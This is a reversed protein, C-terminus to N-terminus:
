LKTLIEASNETVLITHEYHASLSGDRTIATWGDSKVRIDSRGMNIMPEIALVLGPKLEPGQGPPGFNPIQPDEHLQRGIGHGVFEHVVSYGKSHIFTEIVNSIDSVKRGKTATEIALTLSEKTARMLRGAKESIQGVAFTAAADAFYGNLKVGVDIGVIDSEELVRQGPIGHVVVENVSACIHGPFGRYGKFAAKAGSSEILEKARTDLEATTVGPKIINGMDELVRAVIVGAQRIKEVEAHSKLEIM